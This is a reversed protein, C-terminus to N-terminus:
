RRSSSRPRSGARPSPRRAGPGILLEPGPVQDPHQMGDSRTPALNSPHFMAYQSSLAEFYGGDAQARHAHRHRVAVRRSATDRRDMPGVLEPNREEVGCLQVPLARPAVLLQDALRHGAEAVVDHDGRFEAELQGRPEAGARWSSLRGSCMRSTVSFLRRYRPVSWM